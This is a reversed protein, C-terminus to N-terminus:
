RPPLPEFIVKAGLLKMPKGEVPVQSEPIAIEGSWTGLQDYKLDCERPENLPTLDITNVVPDRAADPASLAARLLMAANVKMGSPGGGGGPTATSSVTIDNGDVVVRATNGSPQLMANVAALPMNSRPAPPAAPQSEPPSPPTPPALPAASAASPDLPKLDVYVMAMYAGSPKNQRKQELESLRQERQSRDANAKFEAADSTPFMALSVLLDTATLAVQENTSMSLEMLQRAEVGQKIGLNFRWRRRPDLRNRCIALSSVASQLVEPDQHTLRAALFAPLAEREPLDKERILAEILKKLRKPDAQAMRESLLGIRGAQVLIVAAMQATREDAGSAALNALVAEFAAGTKTISGSRDRKLPAEYPLRKFQGLALDLLAKRVGAEKQQSGALLELSQRFKDASSVATLDSRGLLELLLQIGQPSSQMNLAALLPDDERTIVLSIPGVAQLLRVAAAPDAKVLLARLVAAKLEANEIRGIHAAVDDRATGTAKSLADVSERSGDALLLTIAQRRVQPDTHALCAATAAFLAPPAASPPLNGWASDAAAPPPPQTPQGPDDLPKPQALVQKITELMGLIVAPQPFTRIQQLLPEPPPETRRLVADFATQRTPGDPHAMAALMARDIQEVAAPNASAFGQQSPDTGGFRLTALKAVAGAAIPGERAQTASLLTMLEAARQAPPTDKSLGGVAQLFSAQVTLPESGRLELTLSKFALPAEILFAGFGPSERTERGGARVGPTASVRPAPPTRPGRPEGPVRPQPRAIPPTTNYCALEYGSKDPKQVVQLREWLPESPEPWSLKPLATTRPSGTAGSLAADTKLLAIGRLRCLKGEDTAVKALTGMTINLKPDTTNYAFPIIVFQNNRQIMIDVTQDQISPVLLPQSLGLTFDFRIPGGSGLNWQKALERAEPLEKDIALAKTLMQAAEGTFGADYLWRALKVRAAADNRPLKQEALQARHTFWFENWTRPSQPKPDLLLDPQLQIAKQVAAAAAPFARQLSYGKALELLLEPTTAALIDAKQQASVTTEAATGSPPEQASLRPCLALLSLFIWM